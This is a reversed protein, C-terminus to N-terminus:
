KEIGGLKQVIEESSIQRGDYKLVSATCEIGTMERILGALQGTANQEINVIRGAATAKERLLKQPLPYIDGFVLAAYGGGQRTNLMDVAEKIAGYTSGWGLLLTDFSTPGIFEPEQLEQKLGNLKSMRKDMMRTRMEASETIWGREDHEDSDSRVLNESKGPLLRPSIGCETFKYRLYEAMGTKESAPGTPSIHHYDFSKVTASADGLYQDSLLIVPIQYKEALNFARITQYFADAHHRLAIVM